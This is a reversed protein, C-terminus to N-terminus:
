SKGSSVVEVEFRGFVGVISGTRGIERATAMGAEAGVAMGAEAGAGVVGITETAMGAEAGVAMGAEAGVAM